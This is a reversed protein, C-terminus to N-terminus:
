LCPRSHLEWRSERAPEAVPRPRAAPADQLVLVPVESAHVLARTVMGIGEERQVGSGHASVALLGVKERAAVDLIARCVSPHVSVRAQVPVDQAGLRGALGALYQRALWEGRSPYSQALSALEDDAGPVELPPPRVVHLAVVEAHEGAALILAVRLAWEARPSGDLPVLIRRLSRTWPGPTGAPLLLVSTEAATLVKTATGAIPFRSEGGEGHSTIAVLQVGHEAATEVIEDAPCGVTVVVEAPVDAASFRKRVTELYAQAERRGLLSESPDPPFAGGTSEGRQVVRLLTVGADFARAVQLVVPIASAARESGDLPLLIRDIM